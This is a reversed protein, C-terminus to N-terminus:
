FDCFKTVWIIIEENKIRENEANKMENWVYNFFNKIKLNPKEKINKEKNLIGGLQDGRKM